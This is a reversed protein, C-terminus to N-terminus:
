GGQGFRRETQKSSMGWLPLSLMLLFGVPLALATSCLVSVFRNFCERPVSMGPVPDAGLLPLNVGRLRLLAVAVANAVVGAAFTVLVLSLVSPALGKKRFLQVMACAAACGLAMPGLLPTGPVPEALLDALLGAVCAALVAELARPVCLSVFAALVMLLHPSGPLKGGISLLPALGAELAAFLWCLIAFLPWNM